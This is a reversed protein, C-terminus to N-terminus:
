IGDSRSETRGGDQVGERWGLKVVFGKTEQCGTVEM